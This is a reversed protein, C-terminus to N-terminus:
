KARAVGRGRLTRMCLQPRCRWPECQLVLAVAHVRTCFVLLPLQLYHCLLLMLLQRNFGYNDTYDASRKGGDANGQTTITTLTAALLQFIHRRKKELSATNHGRM